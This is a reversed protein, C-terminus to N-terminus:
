VLVFDMDAHTVHLLLFLLLTSCFHMAGAIFPDTCGKTAAAGTSMALRSHKCRTAAVLQPSKLSAILRASLVLSQVCLPDM